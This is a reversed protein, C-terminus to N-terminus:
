CRPTTCATEGGKTKSDLQDSSERRERLWRELMLIRDMNRLWRARGTAIAECSEWVKQRDLYGGQVLLLRDVATMDRPVVARLQRVLLPHAYGKSFRKVIAPPLLDGLARRMLDRPQGPQCLSEAPIALVFEVLARDLYPHSYTVGTVGEPTRYAPSTRFSEIGIVLDRHAVDAAVVALRSQREVTADLWMRSSAETLHFATAIDPMLRRPSIHLRHLYARLQRRQQWVPLCETVVTYLLPWIPRRSARCWARAHSIARGFRRSDVAEMITSTDTPRNGMVVDGPNGSLIVRGRHQRVLELLGLAVGSPHVPSTWSWSRDIRDAFDEAPVFFGSRQRQDEVVKIFRREDSEPSGETFYSITEVPALSADDACVRDAMCVVASSDLGGSLEAWVPRAARLRARVASAFLSRLGSEYDRPDACRIQNQLPHWYTRRRATAYPAWTAFEGPATAQITRYPTAGPPIAATLHGVIFRPDLHDRLELRDVLEALSTSWHLQDPRECYYLPRNGAYDSALTLERRNADWLALTWDGILRAFADTGWRQVAAMAFGVDTENEGLTRWLQWRLDDRNDLRGDWTMVLGSGFAYPQQELPDQPTIHMARYIMALGPAVFASGGDPGFADLYQGVSATWTPSVPRGDFFFVGAQSSM